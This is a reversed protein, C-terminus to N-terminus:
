GSYIWRRKSKRELVSEYVYLGKEENQRETHKGRLFYCDPM